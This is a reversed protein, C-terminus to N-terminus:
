NWSAQYRGEVIAISLRVIQPEVSRYAHLLGALASERPSIVLMLAENDCVLRSEPQASIDCAGIDALAQWASLERQLADAIQARAAQMQMLMAPPPSLRQSSTEPPSASWRATSGGPVGIHPLGFAIGQPGPAINKTMRLEPAAVSTGERGPLPPHPSRRNINSTKIKGRSDVKSGGEGLSLPPLATVGDTIGLNNPRAQAVPRDRIAEPGGAPASLLRMSMRASSAPKVSGHWQMVIFLAHVLVITGVIARFVRTGSRSPTVMGAPCEGTCAPKWSGARHRM